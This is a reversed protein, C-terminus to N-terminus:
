VASLIRIGVRVLVAPHEQPGAAGMVVAVLVIGLLVEPGGLGHAVGEAAELTGCVAVLEGLEDVHLFVEGVLEHDGEGLPAAAAVAGLPGALGEGADVHVGTDALIELVQAAADLVGLVDARVPLGGQGVADGLANQADARGARLLVQLQELAQIIGLDGGEGLVEGHQLGRGGLHIHVQGQGTLARDVPGDGLHLASRRDDGGIDQLRVAAFPGDGQILDGLGPGSDLVIQIRDGLRLQLLGVVGGDHIGRGGGSEHVVAAELVHVTRHRIGALKQGGTLVQLRVGRVADIEDELSVLGLRGLDIDVLKGGILDGLGLDLDLVVEVARYINRDFILDILGVISIKDEGFVVCKRQLRQILLETCIYVFGPLVDRCAQRHRVAVIVKGHQFRQLM